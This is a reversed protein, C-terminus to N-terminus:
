EVLRQIQKISNQQEDAAILVANFQYPRELHMVKRASRGRWLPITTEFSIGLSSHLSGCMGVDTIHATGKPLTMADASPVHWHDGVVANVRGDLYYGIMRKQSSFDGHFNVITAAKSEDATRNLIDDVVDLPNDIPPSTPFTDGLLSIVLVRGAETNYFKHGVGVEAERMNAPRIIPEHPNNFVSHSQPKELSHNGGTFFDIGAKQLERMHQISMGKGHSVNEAQAIVLDIAHEEMLQPLVESVVIRGPKGMIDGIYLINM